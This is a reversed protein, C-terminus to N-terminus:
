RRKNKGRAEKKVREWEPKLIERAISEIMELMWAFWEEDTTKYDLARITEFMRKHSNENLNLRASIMTRARLLERKLELLKEADMNNTQGKATYIEHLVAATSLFVAVNERWVNIWDMRNQSVTEAFLYHYNYRRTWLAILLSVLASLIVGGLAIFAAIVEVDM